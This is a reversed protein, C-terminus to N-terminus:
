LGHEISPPIANIDELRRGSVHPVLKGRINGTGHKCFLWNHEYENVLSKGPRGSSTLDSRGTAAKYFNENNRRIEFAPGCDENKKTRTQKRKLMVYDFKATQSAIVFMRIAYSVQSNIGGGRGLKYNKPIVGIINRCDHKAMSILDPSEPLNGLFPLYDDPNTDRFEDRQLDQDIFCMFALWTDISCEEADFRTDPSSSIKIYEIKRRRCFAAGIQNDYVRLANDALSSGLGRPNVGAVSTRTASFFYVPANDPKEGSIVTGSRMRLKQFYIRNIPEQLDPHDFMPFATNRLDLKCSGDDHGGLLGPGELQTGKASPRFLKGEPVVRRVHFNFYGMIEELTEVREEGRRMPSDNPVSDYPVVFTIRMMMLLSLEFFRYRTNESKALNMKVDIDTRLCLSM